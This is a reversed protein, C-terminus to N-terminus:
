NKISASATIGLSKLVKELRKRKPESDLDALRTQIPAVFDDREALGILPATLETYMSLQNVPSALVQEILLPVVEERYTEISGLQAMIKVCHDCTVVSGQDATTIIKGLAEASLEPTAYQACM